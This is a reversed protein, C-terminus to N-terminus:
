QLGVIFGFISGITSENFKMRVKSVPHLNRAEDARRRTDLPLYNEDLLQLLQRFVAISTCPPFLTLGRLNM